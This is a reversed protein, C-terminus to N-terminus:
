CQMEPAGTEHVVSLDQIEQASSSSLSMMSLGMISYWAPLTASPRYTMREQKPPTLEAKTAEPLSTLGGLTM